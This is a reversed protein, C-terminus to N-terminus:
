HLRLLLRVEMLVRKEGLRDYFSSMTKRAQQGEQVNSGVATRSAQAAEGVRLESHVGIAIILLVM